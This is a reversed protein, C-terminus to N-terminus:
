RNNPGIKLGLQFCEYATSIDAYRSVYEPALDGIISTRECTRSDVEKTLVVPLSLPTLHVVPNTINSILIGFLATIVCSQLIYVIIDHGPTM